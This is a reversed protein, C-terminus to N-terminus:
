ATTDFQGSIQWRVYGFNIFLMDYEWFPTVHPIASAHHDAGNTWEPLWTYLFEVREFNFSGSCMHGDTGWGLLVCTIAAWIENALILWLAQFFSYSSKSIWPFLLVIQHTDRGSCGIELVWCFQHLLLPVIKAVIGGVTDLHLTEKLSKNQTRVPSLFLKWVEQAGVMYGVSHLPYQTCSLRM